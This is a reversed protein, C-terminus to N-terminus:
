RIFIRKTEHIVLRMKQRFIDLLLLRDECIFLTLLNIEVHNYIRSILEVLQLQLILVNRDLVVLLLFSDLIGVCPLIFVRDCKGHRIGVQPHLRFPM